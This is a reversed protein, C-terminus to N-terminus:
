QSLSFFRYIQDVGFVQFGTDAVITDISYFSIGKGLFGYSFGYEISDCVFVITCQYRNLDAYISIFKINGIVTNERFIPSNGAKKFFM